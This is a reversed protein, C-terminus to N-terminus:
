GQRARSTLFNAMIDKLLDVSVQNSRVAKYAQTLDAGVLGSTDALLM